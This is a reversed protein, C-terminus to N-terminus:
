DNSSPRRQPQEIRRTAQNNSGPDWSTTFLTILAVVPFAVIVFMTTRVGLTSLMIPFLFLGCISGCRVMTEAWGTGVGRLETPYSIAALTKSMPGPGFHHGFMMLAVLFIPVLSVDGESSIGLVGLAAIAIIVMVYGIKGLSVTGFRATLYSQLIGALFACLHAVITAVITSVLDTGFVLGAIIPIYFGIAYYQFSQVFATITVLVTRSAFVHTFLERVGFKASGGKQLEDSFDDAISVRVGYVSSFVHAAKDISQHKAAWLPSEESYILRLILSFAAPIAGCGIVIRWLHDTIGQLAFPLAIAVGAITAISAVPQWLNIWRAKANASSSLIEAMFSLAVPLDLGVAVGMVFRWFLLSLFGQAFAIGLPAAVLLFGCIIFLRYRGTKDALIGGLLSSILAGVGTISTAIGTQTENLGFDATLTSLGVSMSSFDYNDAFISALATIFLIIVRKSARPHTNVYDIIDNRSHLTIDAM